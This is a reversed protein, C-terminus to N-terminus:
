IKIKFARFELGMHCNKEIYSVVKCHQKRMLLLESKAYELAHSKDNCEWMYHDLKYGLEAERSYCEGKAISEKALWECFLALEKVDELSIRMARLAVSQKFTLERARPFDYAPLKACAEAGKTSLMFLEDSYEIHAILLDAWEIVQKSSLYREQWLGMVTSIQQSVDLNKDATWTIESSDLELYYILEEIGIDIDISSDQYIFTGNSPSNDYKMVVVPGISKLLFHAGMYWDLDDKDRLFNLGYRKEIDEPNLTIELVPKCDGSPWGKFEKKDLM